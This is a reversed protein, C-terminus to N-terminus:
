RHIETVSRCIIYASVNAIALLVQKTVNLSASSEFQYGAPFNFYSINQDYTNAAKEEESLIEDNLIHNTSNPAPVGTQKESIAEEIFYPKETLGLLEEGDSPAQFSEKSANMNAIGQFQDSTDLSLNNYSINQDCSNVAKGESILNDNSSLTKVAAEEVPMIAKVFYPKENVGVSEVGDGPSSFIRIPERKGWVDRRSTPAFLTQKRMNNTSGCRGKRISIREKIGNNPGFCTEMLTRFGYSVSSINTIAILLGYYCFRM